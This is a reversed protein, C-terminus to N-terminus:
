APVTCKVLLSLKAAKGASEVKVLPVLENVAVKFVAPVCDMVAVSLAVLLM